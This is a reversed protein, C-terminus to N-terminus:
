AVEQEYVSRPKGHGRRAHCTPCEEPLRVLRKPVEMSILGIFLLWGWGKDVHHALLYGALGFCLLSPSLCALVMLVRILAQTLM